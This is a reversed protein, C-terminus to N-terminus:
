CQWMREALLSKQVSAPWLTATSYPWIFDAQTEGGSQGSACLQSKAASVWLLGASTLPGRNAAASLSEIWTCGNQHAVAAGITSIDFASTLPMGRRQSPM